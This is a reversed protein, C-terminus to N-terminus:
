KTPMYITRTGIGDKTGRYEVVRSDPWGCDRLGIVDDVSCPIKRSRHEWVTVWQKTSPDVSEIFVKVIEERDIQEYISAGRFGRGRIVRPKGNKKLGSYWLSDNSAHHSEKEHHNPHLM